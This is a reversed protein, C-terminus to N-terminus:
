LPRSVNSYVSKKERCVTESIHRSYDVFRNGSEDFRARRDFRTGDGNRLGDIVIQNAAAAAASVFQVVVKSKPIFFLDLDITLLRAVNIVVRYFNDKRAVNASLVAARWRNVSGIRKQRAFNYGNTEPSAFFKKKNKLLRM